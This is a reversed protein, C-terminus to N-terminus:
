PNEGCNSGTATGGVIIGRAVEFTYTCRTYEYSSTGYSSYRSTTGQVVVKIEHVHYEKGGTVFTRHPPGWDAMLKSVPAGTWNNIIQQAWPINRTTDRPAADICSVVAFLVFSLLVIKLSKM